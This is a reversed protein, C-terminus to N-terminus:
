RVVIVRRVSVRGDSRALRALYLGAPVSRGLDDRLDWTAGSGNGGRASRVLTRVRRGALDLITLTVTGDGPSAFDFRAMQRAPNPVPPRLDFIPTSVPPQVSLTAHDRTQILVQGNPHVVIFQVGTTGPRIAHLQPNQAPGVTRPHDPTSPYSVELDYSGSGVGGFTVTYEDQGLYGSGGDVIRTQVPHRPDDLSTLRLTAGQEVLMGDDDVVSVRLFSTNARPLAELHNRAFRRGYAGAAIDLDGDGDIDAFSCLDFNPLVGVFSTDETFTGDGNNLLLRAIAGPPYFLFDMDGDNDVDAWRDGWEWGVPGIGLTSTVDTFTGNDNRYLMPGYATRLYLDLDGDNDYDVFQSGEDFALPLGVQARVDTFHAHGDNLFLHSATYLDLTGDGNWDAVAVGEPKLLAPIGRLAVGSSDSYDLFQGNQQNLYLFSHFPEVHAYFPLFLDPWGDANFDAWAPTEGHGVINMGLDPAVDQLGSPTNKFLHLVNYPSDGEDYPMVVFDMRGDRDYDCWAAGHYNGDGLLSRIGPMEVFTQDSGMYLPLDPKGDGDLDGWAPPLTTSLHNFSPVGSGFGEFSTREDNLIVGVASVTAQASQIRLTFAENGELNRDGVIPVEIVIQDQGAQFTTDGSVPLYDNDAVTATGDLTQYSFHVPLETPAPLRVRFALPHILTDGEAVSTDRVSLVPVDDNVITGIAAANRLLANVPETLGVGFHEDNEFRKDGLVQVGLSEATSGPAFTVRLSVPVYDLDAATATSDFTAVNVRVTEAFAASLHLTFMCVRSASDGEAISADDIWLEPSGDAPPQADTRLVAKSDVIPPAAPGSLVMALLALSLVAGARRRPGGGAGSM